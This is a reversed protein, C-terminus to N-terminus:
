SCALFRQLRLSWCASWWTDPESGSPMSSCRLMSGVPKLRNQSMPLPFSVATAGRPLKDLTVTLESAVRGLDLDFHRIIRHFDSDAGQLIQHIWHVLEVYRNGRLECFLTAGEVSRYAVQNLKKFLRCIRGYTLFYFNTTVMSFSIRPM